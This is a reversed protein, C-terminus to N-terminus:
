PRPPLAPAWGRSPPTAGAARRLPFPAAIEFNSADAPDLLVDLTSDGAAIVNDLYWHPESTAGNAFRLQYLGAPVVLRFAGSSDTRTSAYSRSWVQNSGASVEYGRAPVSDPLVRVTGSWRVGGMAFDYQAPGTVSTAAFGRSAIYSLSGSSIVRWQYRGAPLHLLYGGDAGSIDDCGADSSQAIVDVGALAEGDPGTVAGSVAFGDLHFELTTDAAITYGRFVRFPIGTGSPAGPEFAYVGPPVLMSFGAGWDRAYIWSSGGGATSGFAYTGTGTIRSGDPGYIRGHIRVGEYRYDVHARGPALRASLRVEYPYGSGQPALIGVTYPGEYVQASYFGNADTIPYAFYHPDLPGNFYEPIRESNQFDVRVYQLPAGDRDLIVGTVTVLRLPQTPLESCSISLAALLAVGLWSRLAARGPRRPTGKAGEAGPM